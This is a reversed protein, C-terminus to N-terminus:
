IASVRSLVQSLARPDRTDVRMLNREEGAEFAQMTTLQRALVQVDADSPDNRAKRRREIRETLTARDAHCSLMLFRAGEEQALRAFMRRENVKLFAADVISHLGGRLCALACDRLHAYTRDNFEPTYFGENLPSTRQPDLGALRKRELDSRIRVAPLQPVLRESLWSKGSGSAGHMVILVPSRPQAFREATRLRAHARDRHELREPQQEVAILDVKARVLARYVLYCPLLDAGSYDGTCEFYRNLLIFALDDRNRDSLDMVLFALDSLVDIFRLNSDFEICDFPTLRGNWRVINRAHLDGHCERIFGDRERERLRRLFRTFTQETWAALRSAAAAGGIGPARQVISALNARAIRVFAATRPSAADQDGREASENPADEPLAAAAARHFDALREALEAIETADVAGAGLLAQLEQDAAFQRMRVAYEIPAGEGGFHLGHATRTIPVIDIYLDAAHRRNLRLEEECLGRRRELSRADIFDLHVPKKIKYAFEGTLVVLSIHTERVVIDRVAHPFAAAALELHTLAM